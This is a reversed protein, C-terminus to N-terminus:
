ALGGSHTNVFVENRRPAAEKGSPLDPGMQASVLHALKVPMPVKAASKALPSQGRDGAPLPCGQHLPRISEMSPGCFSCQVLVCAESM